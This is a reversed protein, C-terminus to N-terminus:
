KCKGETTMEVEIRNNIAGSNYSQCSLSESNMAEDHYIRNNLNQDLNSPKVLYLNNNHQHENCVVQKNTNDSANILAPLTYHTKDCQIIFGLDVGCRRSALGVIDNLADLLAKGSKAQQQIQYGFKSTSANSSPIRKNGPPACATFSALSSGWCSSWHTTPVKLGRQINSATVM